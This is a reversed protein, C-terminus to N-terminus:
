AQFNYLFNLTKKNINLLQGIELQVSKQYSNLLNMYLESACVEFPLTNALFNRNSTKTYIITYTKYIHVREELALHFGLHYQHM